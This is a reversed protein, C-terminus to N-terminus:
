QYDGKATRNRAFSYILVTLTSLLGVLGITALLISSQNWIINM